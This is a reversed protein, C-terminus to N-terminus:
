PHAAKYQFPCFEQGTTPCVLTMDDTLPLGLASRAADAPHEVELDFAHHWDGRCNESFHSWNGLDAYPALVEKLRAVEERLEQETEM